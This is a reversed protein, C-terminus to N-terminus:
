LLVEYLALVDSYSRQELDSGGKQAKKISERVGAPSVNLASGSDQVVDAQYHKELYILLKWAKTISAQGNTGDIHIKIQKIEHLM